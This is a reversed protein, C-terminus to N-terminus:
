HIVIDFLCQQQNALGGPADLFQEAMDVIGFQNVAIIQHQHLRGSQWRRQFVPKDPIPYAQEIAMGHMLADSSNAIWGSIMSASIHEM